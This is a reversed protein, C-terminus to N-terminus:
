EKVIVWLVRNPGMGGRQRLADEYGCPLVVREGVAVRVQDQGDVGVGDQGGGADLADLGGEGVRGDVHRRAIHPRPEGAGRPLPASGGFVEEAEM